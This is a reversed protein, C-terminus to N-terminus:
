SRRGPKGGGAALEAVTPPDAGPRSVTIAAADASRRLIRELLGASIQRLAERRDAGILDAELLGDLLAGMFTDGAGVTDVVTTTPAPITVRGSTTLAFAGAGGLTVVVVAPGAALWAAAAEDLSRSPHLWLLDEDSVKVVDALGVLQEV